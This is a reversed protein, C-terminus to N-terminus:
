RLFRSPMVVERGRSTLRRPSLPSTVPSSGHKRSGSATEKDGSLGPSKLTTSRKPSSQRAKPTAQKSNKPQLPSKSRTENRNTDYKAQLAVLITPCFFIEFNNEIFSGDNSKM